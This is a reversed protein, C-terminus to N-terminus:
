SNRVRRNGEGTGNTASRGRWIITRDAAPRAGAKRRSPAASISSVIAPVFGIRVETYGFKADPVALTFDCLLQWGTGGAIAAGNVAAITPKPFDYLTPFTGGDRAFGACESRRKERYASESEGPGHRVCFAKGAGTLILVRPRRFEDSRRVRPAFRRDFRLQDRQAERSPQAHHHRYRLRLALHITTINCIAKIGGRMTM